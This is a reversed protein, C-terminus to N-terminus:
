RKRGRRLATVGGGVLGLALMAVGAEGLTPLPTSNTIGAFAARGILIAFTATLVVRITM